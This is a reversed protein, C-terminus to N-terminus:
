RANSRSAKCIHTTRVKGSDLTPILTTLISIFSSMMNDRRAEKVLTDVDHALVLLQRLHRTEDASINESPTSPRSPPNTGAQIQLVVNIIPMPLIHYMTIGVKESDGAGNAIATSAWLSYRKILQSLFCIQAQAIAPQFFDLTQVSQRWVQLTM